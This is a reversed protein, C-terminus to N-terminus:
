SKPWVVTITTGKVPATIAPHGTVTIVFNGEGDSPDNDKGNGGGKGGGGTHGNSHTVRWEVSGGGIFQGDGMVVEENIFRV